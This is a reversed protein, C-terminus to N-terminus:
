KNKAVTIKLMIISTAEIYTSYEGQFVGLDKRQFLDRANFHQGKQLGVDNSTFTAKFKQADFVGMNVIAVAIGGDILPKYWLQVEAKDLMVYGLIMPTAMIGLEDQNVAIVEENLLINRIEDSIKRLDVSLLLPASWMSWLGFQIRAQNASLGPNGALIMDPDHYAGVSQASRLSANYTTFVGIIQRIGAHRELNYSDMIDKYIRWTTCSSTVADWPIVNDDLAGPVGTMTATLNQVYVPWSCSYIVQQSDNNLYAGLKPYTINMLNKKAACGDVKISDINWKKKMVFIDRRLQKDAEEDPVASVNLGPTGACTTRGVDNYVGFKLNKSHIYKSLESLGSPFRTPDARLDGRPSDKSPTGRSTLYCDDINIYEYGKAAFGQNVLEDTMSKFLNESICTKPFTVCDKACGFAEWSMWGMPPKRIKAFGDINEFCFLLISFTLTISRNTPM